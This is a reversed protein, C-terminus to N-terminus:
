SRPNSVCPSEKTKTAPFTSLPKTLWQQFHLRVREWTDAEIEYRFGTSTHRDPVWGFEVSEIMVPEKPADTDNKKRLATKKSETRKWLFLAFMAQGDRMVTAGLVHQKSCLGIDWWVFETISAHAMQAADRFRNLIEQQNAPLTELFRRLNKLDDDGHPGDGLLSRAAEAMQEPESLGRASAKLVLDSSFLM